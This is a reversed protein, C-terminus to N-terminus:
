NCNISITGSISQTQVQLHVQNWINHDPSVSIEWRCGGIFASIYWGTKHWSPDRQFEFNLIDQKIIKNVIKRGQNYVLKVTGGFNVHVYAFWTLVQSRFADTDRIYVSSLVSSDSAITSQQVSAHILLVVCHLLDIADISFIEGNLSNENAYRHFSFLIPSGLM